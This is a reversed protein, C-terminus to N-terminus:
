TEKAIGSKLPAKAPKAHGKPFTGPRPSEPSLYTKRKITQSKGEGQKEWDESKRNKAVLTDPPRSRQQMNASLGRPTTLVARSGSHQAM